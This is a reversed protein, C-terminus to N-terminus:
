SVPPTPISTFLQHQISPQPLMIHGNRDKYKHITSLIYCPESGHTFVKNILTVNMDHASSAKTINNVSRTHWPQKAFLM